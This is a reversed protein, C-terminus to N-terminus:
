QARANSTDKYWEPYKDKAHNCNMCLIQFRLPDPNRIAERYITQTQKGAQRDVNGDDNVHDLTLHQPVDHGCNACMSGYVDLVQDKLKERKRVHAERCHGCEYYVKGTKDCVYRKRGCNPCLGQALRKKREAQKPM